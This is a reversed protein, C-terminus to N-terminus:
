DRLSRSERQMEANRVGMYTKPEAHIFVARVNFRVSPAVRCFANLIPNDRSERAKYAISVNQPPGSLLARALMRAKTSRGVSQYAYVLREPNEPVSYRATLKQGIVTRVVENLGRLYILGTLPRSSRTM